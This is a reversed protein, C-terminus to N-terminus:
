KISAHTGHKTARINPLNTTIRIGTGAQVGVMWSNPNWFGEQFLSEPNYGIYYDAGANLTWDARLDRWNVRVLSADVSIANIGLFSKDGFGMLSAGVGAHFDAFATVPRGLDVDREDGGMIRMSVNYYPVDRLAVNTTATADRTLDYNNFMTDIVDGLSYLSDPNGAYAQTLSSTTYDVVNGFLDQAQQTSLSVDESYDSTDYHAFTADLMVRPGDDDYILAGPRDPDVVRKWKQYELGFSGTQYANANGVSLGGATMTYTGDGNNELASIQPGDPLGGIMRLFDHNGQVFFRVSSPKAVLYKTPLSVPLTNPSAQTTQEVVPAALSEDPLVPDDVPDQSHRRGMKHSAM